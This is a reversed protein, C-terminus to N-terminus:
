PLRGGALEFFDELVSGQALRMHAAEPIPSIVPIYILPPTKYM